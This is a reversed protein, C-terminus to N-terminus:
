RSGPRLERVCVDGPGCVSEGKKGSILLGAPEDPRAQDGRILRIRVSSTIRMKDNVAGM